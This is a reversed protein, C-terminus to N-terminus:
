RRGLLDIEQLGLEKSVLRCAESVKKPELACRMRLPDAGAKVGELVKNQTVWACSTVAFLLLILSMYLFFRFAAM